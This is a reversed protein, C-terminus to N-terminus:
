KPPTQFGPILAGEGRTAAIQLRAKFREGSFHCGLMLAFYVWVTATLASGLAEKWARIGSHFIARRENGVVFRWAALWVFLLPFSCLASYVPFAPWELSTLEKPVVRTSVHPAIARLWDYGVLGQLRLFAWVGAFVISLVLFAAFFAGTANSLLWGELSSLRMEVQQRAPMRLLARNQWRTRIACWLALSLPPAFFLLGASAALVEIQGSPPVFRRSIPVNAANYFWGYLAFFGVLSLAVVVVAPLARARSSSERGVARWNFISALWWWGLLYLGFLLVGFGCAHAGQSWFFAWPSRPAVLASSLNNSLETQPGTASSILQIRAACQRALAIGEADGHRRALPEYDALHGYAPTPMGWRRVRAPPTSLAVSWASRAWNEGTRWQAAECPASQLLLSVRMMARSRSLLSAVRKKARDRGSMMALQLALDDLLMSSGYYYIGNTRSYLDNQETWTAIGTKRAASFAVRKLATHGDDFFACGAARQLFAEREARRGMDGMAKALVLPYFANRPEIKHGKRAWAVLPSGSKGGSSRPAISGYGLSSRLALARLWTERPFQRLLRGATNQAPDSNNGYSYSQFFNYSNERQERWVAREIPTMGRTARESDDGAWYDQWPQDYLRPVFRSGLFHLRAEDRTQPLLFLLLWAGWFWKGRWLFRPIALLLRSSM